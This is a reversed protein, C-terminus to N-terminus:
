FSQASQLIMEELEKDRTIQYIRFDSNGFLVALDARELGTIAMYWVCQCLYSMPVQDSGVEGWDGSTYPNATKCELIRTPPSLEGDELVFRDIHASMYPHQPHIHTSEDHLLVLGTSKAYEDAM